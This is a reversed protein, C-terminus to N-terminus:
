KAFRNKSAQPVKKEEGLQLVLLTLDQHTSEIIGKLKSIEKKLGEVEAPLHIVEARSESLDIHQTELYRAEARAKKSDNKITQIEEEVAKLRAASEKSCDQIKHWCSFMRRVKSDTETFAGFAQM